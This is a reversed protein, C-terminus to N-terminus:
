ENNIVGESNDYQLKNNVIMSKGAIDLIINVTSVTAEPTSTIANGSIGKVSITKTDNQLQGKLTGAGGTSWTWAM